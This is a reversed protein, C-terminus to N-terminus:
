TRGIHERRTRIRLRRKPRSRKLATCVLLLGVGCYLATTAEPAPLSPVPDRRFHYVNQAYGGPPALAEFPADEPSFLSWLESTPAEQRAEGVPTAWVLRPLILLVLISIPFRYDRM